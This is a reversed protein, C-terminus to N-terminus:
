GKALLETLLLANGTAAGLTTNDLMCWADAGRARAERLATAVVALRAPEYDSYYMKPSGHLRFYVLADDGGPRAAAPVCAPDAAVRAVAHRRLM